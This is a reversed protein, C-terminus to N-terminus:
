RSAALGAVAPAVRLEAVQAATQGPPGERAPLPTSGFMGCGTLILPAAVAALRLGRIVNSTM